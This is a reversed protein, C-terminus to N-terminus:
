RTERRHPAGRERREDGARERCARRGRAAIRDRDIDLELRERGAGDVDQGALGDLPRVDALPAVRHRGVVAGEIRAVQEAAVVERLGEVADPGMQVVAGDM